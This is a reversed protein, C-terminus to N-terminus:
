DKVGRLKMLIVFASRGWPWAARKSGFAATFAPRNQDDGIEEKALLVLDEFIGHSRRRGQTPRGMM